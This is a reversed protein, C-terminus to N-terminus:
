QCSSCSCTKDQSSGSRPMSQGISWGLTDSLSLSPFNSESSSFISNLYNLNINYIKVIEIDKAEQRVIQKIALFSPTTSLGSPTLFTWLPLIAKPPPIHRKKGRIKQIENIIKNYNKKMYIIILM